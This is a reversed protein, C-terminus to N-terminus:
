CMVSASHDGADSQSGVTSELQRHVEFLNFSHPIRSTLWVARGTMAKEQYISIPHELMGITNSM